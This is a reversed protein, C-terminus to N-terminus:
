NLKAAQKAQVAAIFGELAKVLEPDAEAGAKGIAIRCVGLVAECAIAPAVLLTGEDGFADAVIRHLLDREAPTVREDTVVLLYPPALIGIMPNTDSSLEFSQYSM